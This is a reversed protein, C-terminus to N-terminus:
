GAVGAGTADGRPGEDEGRKEGAGEPWEEVENVALELRRGSRALM